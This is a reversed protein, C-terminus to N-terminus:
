RDRERSLKIGTHKEFQEIFLGISDHDLLAHICIYDAMCCRENLAGGCLEFYTNAEELSMQLGVSFKYLFHRTPDLSGNVTKKFTTTSIHCREELEGYAATSSLGHEKQYQLKKLGILNALRTSQERFVTLESATVRAIDKVPVFEVTSFNEKNLDGVM